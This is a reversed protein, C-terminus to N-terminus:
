CDFTPAYLKLKQLGLLLISAIIYTVYMVLSCM